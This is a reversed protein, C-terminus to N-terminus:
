TVIHKLQIQLANLLHMQNNARALNQEAYQISYYSDNNFYDTIFRLAQMYIMMEGAFFFHKKEFSTLENHMYHLYGNQIAQLIEIRIEIKTYDQEEESVPCVYTRIMDGLDSLFYGPMVTDLDIVCVAKGQENFLVNSIKTDHHTVRKVADANAIFQEYVKCIGSANEIQKILSSCANIREQNGTELATKFQQYRLTLNHFNPLTINLKAADFDKLLFTFEGFAKAAEFAQSATEVVNVTTTNEIFDFARFYKGEICYLTKSDLGKLPKTFLYNPSYAQFYNNLLQLNEDIAEPTKFVQHNIQQLIISKEGSTIKYTANILGSQLVVVSYNNLGYHQLVTDLAQM